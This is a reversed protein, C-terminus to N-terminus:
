NWTRIIQFFMYYQIGCECAFDGHAEWVVASLSNIDGVLEIPQNCKRCEVSFGLSDVPILTADEGDTDTQSPTTPEQNETKERM